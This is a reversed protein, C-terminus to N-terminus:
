AAVITAEVAHRSPWSQLKDCFVAWAESSDRAKVTGTVPGSKTIKAVKWDCVPAAPKNHKTMQREACTLGAADVLHGEGDIRDGSKNLKLKDATPM